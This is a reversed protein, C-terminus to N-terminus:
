DRADEAERPSIGFTIRSQRGEKLYEYEISDVLRRVLHLGLGGATRQELPLSTDVDPAQTVDFPESGFDALVAEVGGATKRLTLRISADSRGYKVMNTFLEELALDLRPLLRADLRHSAFVDATFSALEPLADISRKFSWEAAVPWVERKALLITM